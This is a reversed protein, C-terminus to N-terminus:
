DPAFIRGAVRVHPFGIVAVIVAVERVLPCGLGHALGLADLPQWNGVLWLADDVQIIDAVVPNRNIVLGIQRSEVHGNTGRTILVLVRRYDTNQHGFQDFPDFGAM